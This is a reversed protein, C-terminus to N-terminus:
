AKRSRKRSKKHEGKLAAKRRKGKGEHSVGKITMGHKKSKKGAM